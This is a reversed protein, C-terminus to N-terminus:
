AAGSAEEAANWRDYDEERPPGFWSPMKASPDDDGHIRWMVYDWAATRADVEEPIMDAARFAESMQFQMTVPSFEHRNQIADQEISRNIANSILGTQVTTIFEFKKWDLEGPFLIGPTLAAIAKLIVEDATLGTPRCIEELKKITDPNLTEM